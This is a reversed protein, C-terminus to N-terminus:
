KLLQRPHVLSFLVMRSVLKLLTPEKLSSDMGQTFPMLGLIRSLKVFVCILDDNICNKTRVHLTLPVTAKHNMILCNKTELLLSRPKFALTMPHM